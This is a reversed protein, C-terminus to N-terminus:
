RAGPISSRAAQLMMERPIMGQESLPENNVKVGISRTATVDAYGQVYYSIYENGLTAALVGPVLTWPVTVPATVYTTEKAPLWVNPQINVAPLQYRGALTTQAYMNRVQIDFSNSNHVKVVVNAVIGMPTVHSIQAHHLQMTPKSACSVASLGVGLALAVFLTRCVWGRLPRMQSALFTTMMAPGM